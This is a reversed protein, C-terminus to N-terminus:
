KIVLNTETKIINTRVKVGSTVLRGFLFKFKWSKGHGVMLNWLKGPM